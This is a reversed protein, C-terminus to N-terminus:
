NAVIEMQTDADCNELIYLLDQYNLAVCGETHSYNERAIHLFIASGYGAVIPADNHGLVVCIDYLDDDRWLKEASAPYPHHIFKNYNADDPADCWGFDKEIVITEFQTNPKAIKDARYYIKRIPWTGIPTCNDGERKLAADIVGNEGLACKFERGAFRLIGLASNDISKVIFNM